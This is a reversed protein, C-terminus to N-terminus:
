FRCNAPAARRPFDAFDQAVERYRPRFDRCGRLSAHDLPRFRPGMSQTVFRASWAQADRSELYVRMVGDAEVAKLRSDGCLGNEAKCAFKTEGGKTKLFELTWVAGDDRMLQAKVSGTEAVTFVHAILCWGRDAYDVRYDPLEDSFCLRGLNAGVIAYDSNLIVDRIKQGPCYASKLWAPKDDTGCVSMEGGRIHLTARGGACHFFEGDKDPCGQESCDDWYKVNVLEFVSSESKAELAYYSTDPYVNVGNLVCGPGLVISRTGKWWEAIKAPDKRIPGTWIHANALYTFANYIKLGVRTGMIEINSLRCDVPELYMGVAKMPCGPAGVITVDQAYVPRSGRGFVAVGTADLNFIGVQSIFTTTAQECPRVLIGCESSCCRVNLREVNVKVKGGFEIVGRSCDDCAIASVLCSRSPANTPNDSIRAYADGVLPNLPKLPKAVLYRGAPFYLTGRSTNANVIESVDASGDAKAGLETVDIMGAVALRVALVATVSVLYKMIRNREKGKLYRHIVNM